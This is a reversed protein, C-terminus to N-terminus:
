LPDALSTSSSKKFWTSDLHVAFSAAVLLVGGAIQLPTLSFGLVVWNIIGAMVPFGMEAIASHKSEIRKLGQYYLVMGLVGSILVMVLIKTGLGLNVATEFPTNMLLFPLLVVLGVVFRGNMIQASNYGSLALKKGFVTSAGWSLVAILALGYGILRKIVESSYHWGEAQLLSHFDEFMLLFSGSLALGLCIIFGAQIKEKLVLAALSIAVLPQLKQLLIVLTPNMYSFAETFALTGVASGLGGVVLLSPWDKKVFSWVAQRRFTLWLSMGVVLMLHEAFVIQIPSLGAELLPYRILTDLAWFFTAFLVFLTGTV